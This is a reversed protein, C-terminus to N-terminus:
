LCGKYSYWIRGKLIDRVRVMWLTCVCVSVSLHSHGCRFAVYYLWTCINDSGGSFWMRTRCLHHESVVGLRGDGGAVIFVM